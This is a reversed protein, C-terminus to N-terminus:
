GRPDPVFGGPFPQPEPWTPRPRPLIGRAALSERSDYRLSVVETPSSGAREFRTYRTPAYEREGHGTGLREAKRATQHLAQSLPSAPASGAAKAADGATNATSESAGRAAERYGPAADGLSPQLVPPPVYAKERFVAAGIVGVNDPRGTRAAYSDPLATFYFQAVDSLNKRWGAIEAREWPDLVYGSQDPAATEGSVANVGDVSLVVLMRHGTRNVLRVAYRDGPNGAIWDQGRHQYIDLTQGTARDVIEMDLLRGAQVPLSATLGALILTFLRAFM